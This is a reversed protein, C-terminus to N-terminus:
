EAEISERSRYQELKQRIGADALIDDITRLRRGVGRRGLEAGAERLGVGSARWGRSFYVDLAAELATYAMVIAERPLGDRAWRIADLAILEWEPLPEEESLAEVLREHAEARLGVIPLTIGGGYLRIGGRDSGDQFRFTAIAGG